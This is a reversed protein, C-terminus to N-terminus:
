REATPRAAIASYQHDGQDLSAKKTPAQQLLALADFPDIGLRRTTDAFSEAASQAATMRQSESMSSRAAVRSGRRGETVIVGALELERFAKVVTGPALDLDRALQRITPLRTGAALLGSAVVSEIQARVQEYAPVPSSVDVALTVAM